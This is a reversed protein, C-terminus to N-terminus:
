RGPLWKSRCNERLPRSARATIRQQAYKVLVAVATKGCRLDFRGRVLKGRKIGAHVTRHTGILELCGHRTAVSVRTAATSSAAKASWRRHAGIFQLFVRQGLVLGLLFDERGQLGHPALFAKQIHRWQISTQQTLECFRDSCLPNNLQPGRGTLRAQPRAASATLPLCAICAHFRDPVASSCSALVELSRAHAVDHCDDFPSACSFTVWCLSGM